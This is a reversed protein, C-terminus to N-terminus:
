TKLSVRSFMSLKTDPYKKIGELEDAFAHCDLNIKSMKSVQHERMIRREKEQWEERFFNVVNTQVARPALRM